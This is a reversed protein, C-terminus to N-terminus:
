DNNTWTLAFTTGKKLESEVDIKIAYERAIKSVIELGIGFGGKVQDERMYRRFIYPLAEKSIGQGNDRITLRNKTLIFEILGSVRNYKIANSILNDLMRTIKRRDAFIFAESNLTTKITIKKQELALHFYDLRELILEKANILTEESSINHKLVLFTLDDYLTSITQSAIKMRRLKKALKPDLEEENITEINSLITAVPTNLEHTTDKIFKDLLEVANHMPRLFLKASYWGFLGLVILSVIVVVAIHTVADEAWIGEDEVELVVYRAGLYYFEPQFVYQIYGENLAIVKHLDIHKTRLTSFIREKEIDYIGTRISNIRPYTQNTDFNKHRKKLLNLFNESQLQLELRYEQLMSEKKYQYYFYGLLGLIMVWLTIYLLFFSRLSRFESKRLNIATDNNHSM